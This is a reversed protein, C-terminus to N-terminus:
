GRPNEHVQSVPALPLSFIFTAGGGPTDEIWIRGRHAEVIGKAIALGLGINGDKGHYFPEMIVGREVPTINPGHNAVAVWAEDSHISGSIELQSEAAEYRLSNEVLNTLAQLILGYDFQVLPLEEPFEIKVREEHTLKWFRAAVDGAVEELSNWASNIQMAGAQLRSIDLLNGVMKNLQDAESEISRIMEIRDPEPLTLNLLHSASTKIITIPTRLDHSVAHLIATKLRDADQFSRSQQARQALEIRQLAMAAQLACATSLRLMSSSPPKDFALRLIGYATDGARLLLYLVTQDSPLIEGTYPLVDSQRVGMYEKLVRKLTNYVNEKDTLQNFASALEYLINLEYARQQSDRTQKRAYSALQGTLTAAVFFMMLDLLDRPDAVLFTYLPKVLFFNFGLLGILAALLSPGTGQYVASILVVLLYALSFNAPTLVDRLLWLVLTTAAALAASFLYRRILSASM